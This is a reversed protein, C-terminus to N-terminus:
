ALGSNQSGLASKRHRREKPSFDSPKYLSLTAIGLRPLRCQRSKATPMMEAAAFQWGSFFQVITGLKTSVFM